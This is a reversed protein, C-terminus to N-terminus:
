SLKHGRTYQLGLAHLQLVLYLCSGAANYIEFTDSAPKNTNSHYKPIPQGILPQKPHKKPSVMPPPHICTALLNQTSAKALGTTM